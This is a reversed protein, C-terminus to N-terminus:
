LVAQVILVAAATAVLSATVWGVRRRLPPSGLWAIMGMKVLTNSLAAIVISRVALAPDMAGTSTLNAVSLTIADVDTTGALAAIGYMGEQPLYTQALKVALLIVAFFLGFKIAETLQFPNTLELQQGGHEAPSQAGRRGVRYFYAACGGSVVGLAIMTPLLPALLAYDVVAVEVLVRIFMVAWALLVGTALAAEIGPHERSQRAFTLTAATSSVLGGFFGTIATGRETGFWRMAVYGVMSLASILIVLLWLKYPSLAGWPDVPEQPLLPLVVFSALLLKLGALLEERTLKGVLAHLPQKLALLLSTVIALAIAVTAHGFMVAGGLLFVVFGAIETTIGQSTGQGRWVDAAFAATVLMAAVVACVAFIVMSGTLDSLWASVAGAEALLTFSRLGGLASPESANRIEREVGVLAGILLATALGQFTEYEAMPTTGACGRHLVTTPQSSVTGRYQAAEPTHSVTAMIVFLDRLWM